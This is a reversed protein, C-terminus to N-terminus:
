PNKVFMKIFNYQFSTVKTYFAKLIQKKKLYKLEHFATHTLKYNKNLCIKIETNNKKSMNGFFFFRMLHKYNKEKERHCVFYLNQYYVPNQPNLWM